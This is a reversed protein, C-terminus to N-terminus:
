DGARVPTTYTGASAGIAALLTELHGHDHGCLPCIGTEARSRIRAMIESFEDVTVRERDIRKQMADLYEQAAVIHGSAVAIAEKLEQRRVRATEIEKQLREMEAQDSAFDTLRSFLRKLEASAARAQSLDSIAQDLEKKKTRKEQEIHRKSIEILNVRRELVAIRQSVRNSLNELRAVSQTLELLRGTRDAKAATAALQTRAKKAKLQVRRLQKKARDQRALLMNLDKGIEKQILRSSEMAESKSRYSKLEDRLKGLADLKDFNGRLREECLSKVELFFGEVNRDIDSPVALDIEQLAKALKKLRTSRNVQMEADSSLVSLRENLSAELEEKERVTKLRKELIVALMHEVERAKELRKQADPSGALTVLVEAREEPQAEIFRKVSTQSLFVTSQFLKRVRYLNRRQPAFDPSILNAFLLGTHDRAPRLSSRLLMPGSGDRKWTVEIWEPSNTGFGLRVLPNSAAHVCTMAVKHRKLLKNGLRSVAGTLALEIADFVSTKGSGNRGFLVTIDASLNLSLKKHCRFNRLDLSLLRM